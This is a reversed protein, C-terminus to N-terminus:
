KKEEARIEEVWQWVGHLDVSKNGLEKAKILWRTGELRNEEAGRGIFICEGLNAMATTHGQEAARRYWMVARKYDKRVGLGKDYAYGLANQAEADGLKAAKKYAETAKKHDQKVGFAGTYYEALTCLARVDGQEARLELGAFDTNAIEEDRKICEALLRQSGALWMKIVNPNGLEAQEIIKNAWIKAKEFDIEIGEGRLCMMALHYMAKVSGLEAAKTYWHVGKVQTKFDVHVGSWLYGLELMASIDGEEAKKILEKREKDYAMIKQGRKITTTLFAKSIITPRYRCM